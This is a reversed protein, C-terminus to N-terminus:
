HDILNRGNRFSHLDTKLEESVFATQNQIYVDQAALINIQDSWRMNPVDNEDRKIFGKKVVALIVKETLEEVLECMDRLADKRPNEPALFSNPQNFKKLCESVSSKYKGYKLTPDPCVILAPNKPEREIKVTGDKDIILLGIGTQDLKKLFTGSFNTDIHTALFLEAYFRQNQLWLALDKMDEDCTVQYQAEILINLEGKKAILTTSCPAQDNLPQDVKVNLKLKTLFDFLTRAISIAEEPTYVYKM